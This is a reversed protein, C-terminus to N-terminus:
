APIRQFISLFVPYFFEGKVKITLVCKYGFCHIFCAAIRQFEPMVKALRRIGGLFFSLKDLACGPWQHLAINHLCVIRSRVIIFTTCCVDRYGYPFIANYVKGEGLPVDSRVSAVIVLLNNLKVSIARYFIYFHLIQMQM